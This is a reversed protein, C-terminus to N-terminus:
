RKYFDNGQRRYTATLATLREVLDDEAPHITVNEQEKKLAEEYRSWNTAYDTRAKDELPTREKPDNVERAVLMFQFSSDIRELAEKLSQMALVSEYNERLIEDIRNGLRHLLMTGAGGLLALLLLLPVLTSTIRWRLSLRM